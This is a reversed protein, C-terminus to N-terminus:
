RNSQSASKLAITNPCFYSGGDRKKGEEERRRTGRRRSGESFTFIAKAM